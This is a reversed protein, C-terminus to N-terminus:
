GHFPLETVSRSTNMSDIKPAAAAAAVFPVWHNVKSFLFAAAATILSRFCVSTWVNEILGPM